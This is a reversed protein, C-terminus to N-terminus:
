SYNIPTDLVKRSITPATQQKEPSTATRQRSKATEETNAPNLEKSYMPKGDMSRGFYMEGHEGYVFCVNGDGNSGTVRTSVANGIAKVITPDDIAGTVNARPQGCMLCRVTETGAATETNATLERKVFKQIDRVEVIDAKNAVSKRIGGIRNNLEGLAMRFQEFLSQLESKDAKNDIITKMQKNLIEIQGKLSNVATETRDLRPILDEYRKLDSRLSELEKNSTAVQSSALRPLQRSKSQRSEVVEVQRKRVVHVIPQEYIIKEPLTVVRQQQVQQIQPQLPPLQQDQPLSQTTQKSPISSPSLPPINEPENTISLSPIHPSTLVSVKDTSEDENTSQVPTSPQKKNQNSDDSDNKASNKVLSLNFKRKDDEYKSKDLERQKQIDNVNNELNEAQMSLEKIRDMIQTTESKVYAILKKFRKDNNTVDEKAQNSVAKADEILSRSEESHNRLTSIAARVNIIDKNAKIVAERINSLEDQTDHLSNELETFQDRTVQHGLQSKFEDQVEKLESIKMDTTILRTDHDKVKDNVNSLTLVATNFKDPQVYERTEMSVLRGDMDNIIVLHAQLQQLLKETDLKGDDSVINRLSDKTMEAAKMNAELRSELGKVLASLDSLNDSFQIMQRDHEASMGKLDTTFKTELDTLKSNTKKLGIDATAANKSILSNLKMNTEKLQQNIDSSLTSTANQIEIKAADLFTEMSDESIASKQVVPSEEKKAPQEDDDSVQESPLKSSKKSDLIEDFNANAEKPHGNLEDLFEEFLEHRTSNPKGSQTAQNENLFKLLHDDYETLRGECKDLREEFEKLKSEEVIVRSSRQSRRGTNPNSDQTQQSGPIPLPIEPKANSNPQGTRIEDVKEQLDTLTDENRLIDDNLIELQDKGAKNELDKKLYAVEKQLNQVCVCLQEFLSQMKSADFTFSINFEKQAVKLIESVSDSMEKKKNRFLSYNHIFSKTAINPQLFDFFLM